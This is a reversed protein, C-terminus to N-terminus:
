MATIIFKPAYRHVANCAPDLTRRSMAISARSSMYAAANAAIVTEHILAPFNELESGDFGFKQSGPRNTNAPMPSALTKRCLRDWCVTKATIVTPRSISDSTIPMVPENRSFAHNQAFCMSSHILM